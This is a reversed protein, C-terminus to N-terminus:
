LDRGPPPTQARSSYYRTCHPAPPRFWPTSGARGTRPRERSTPRPCAPSRWRSRRGTPPDRVTMTASHYLVVVDADNRGFVSAALSSPIEPQEAANHLQQGRRHLIKSFVGTGWVGAAVAFLVAIVLTWKRARYLGRGWTEFM